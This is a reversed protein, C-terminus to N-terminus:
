QGSVVVTNHNVVQLSEVSTFPTADALTYIDDRHTYAQVKDTLEVNIALPYIARNFLFYGSLGYEYRNGSGVISIPAGESRMPIIESNVSSTLLTIVAIIFVSKLLTLRNLSLM